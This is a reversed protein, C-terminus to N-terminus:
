SGRPRRQEMEQNLLAVQEEVWDQGWPGGWMVEGRSVALGSLRIRRGSTCLMRPVAIPFLPSGPVEFGRVETWPCHWTRWTNRVTVGFDDVIVAQRASLVAYLTVDAVLMVGFIAPVTGRGGLYAAPVLSVLPLVVVAGWRGPRAYVVKGDIWKRSDIVIVERCPWLESRASCLWLRRM